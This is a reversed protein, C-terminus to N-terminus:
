GLIKIEIANVGIRKSKQTHIFINLQQNVVTVDMWDTWQGKEIYPEAPFLNTVDNDNLYINGNRYSDITEKTSSLFRIQYIGNPVTFFFGNYVEANYRFIYSYETAISFKSSLDGNQGGNSSWTKKDTWEPNHALLLSDANVSNRKWGPLIKGSKSYISDNDIQSLVNGSNLNITGGYTEDVIHGVPNYQYLYSVFCIIKDDEQPVDGSTIEISKNYNNGSASEAIVISKTGETTYTVDFEFVNAHKEKNTIVGGESSCDVTEMRTNDSPLCTAIVHVPKNIEMSGSTAINVSEIEVDSSIEDVTVNVSITTEVDSGDVYFQITGNSTGPINSINRIAYTVINGDISQTINLNLGESVVYKIKSMQTNGDPLVTLIANQSASNKLALESISSQLSSIVVPILVADIRAQYAIRLDERLKPLDFEADEKWINDETEEYKSVFYEINDIVSEEIILHAYINNNDVTVHMGNIKEDTNADYADITIGAASTNIVGKMEITVDKYNFNDKYPLLLDFEISTSNTKLGSFRSYNRFYNYEYLEGVTAFWIRKSYETANGYTDAIYKLFDAWTSTATHCAFHFWQKANLDSNNIIAALTAKLEEEIDDSFVRGFVKHFYNDLIYPYCGTSPTGEAISMDIKPMDNMANIFVNNGDPRAIIKMTRNIMTKTRSLDANLGQIVNYVDKDSGFMETSINHFYFDVGYRKILNCDGWVLSPNMFRYLNTATKDIVPIYDMSFNGNSGIYPWIAVGQKFREKFGFITSYALYEDFAKIIVNVPVDGALYQNAHYWYTRGEPTTDATKNVSIGRKNIASWIVSLTSVSADDTTFCIVNTTNYKLPCIGVTYTGNAVGDIKVHIKKIRGRTYPSYSDLSINNIEEQLNQQIKDIEIKKYVDASGAKKKLEGTIVKNQVPNLSSDSLSSDITITRDNSGEVLENVKDKIANLDIAKLVEGTQFTKELKDM